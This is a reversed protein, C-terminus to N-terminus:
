SIRFEQPLLRGNEQHVSLGNQCCVTFWTWLCWFYEFDQLLGQLCVTYSALALSFVIPSTLTQIKVQIGKSMTWKCVQASSETTAWQNLGSWHNQKNTMVIDTLSKKEMHNNLNKSCTLTDWREKQRRGEWAGQLLKQRWGGVGFKCQLNYFAITMELSVGEGSCSVSAWLQPFVQEPCWLQHWSRSLFLLWPLCVIIM